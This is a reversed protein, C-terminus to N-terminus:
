FAPVENILNVLLHHSGWIYLVCFPPHLMLPTESRVELANRLVERIASSVPINVDNCAFSGCSLM